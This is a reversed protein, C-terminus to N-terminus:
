SDDAIDKLLRQAERHGSKAAVNLWYHCWWESGKAASKNALEFAADPNGAEAHTKLVPIYRDHIRTYALVNYAIKVIVFIAVLWFFGKIASESALWDVATGTFRISSDIASFWSKATEPEVEFDLLGTKEVIGLILLMPIPIIFMMMIALVWNHGRLIWFQRMYDRIRRAKFILMFEWDSLEPEPYFTRRVSSAITSILENKRM